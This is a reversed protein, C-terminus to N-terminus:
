WRRWDLARITLFIFVGAVSLYYVVDGTDLIGKIFGDLRDIISASRIFDGPIGGLLDGAWSLVWLGLMIGFSVIGAVFMSDTLSSVFLGVSVLALGMLVFGLYGTFIPGLDPTGFLIVFLPFLLTLGVIILLFVAAGLFKGLVLEVLRIPATMLLEFTGMKKEESFLRMTIMPLVLLLMISMNNFLYRLNSERTYTLIGMFFFGSLSLFVAIAVYGVPSSFYTVIEKRCIAWVRRV